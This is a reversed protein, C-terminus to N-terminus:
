TFNEEHVNNKKLRIFNGLLRKNQTMKERVKLLGWLMESWSQKKNRLINRLRTIVPFKDGDHKICCGHHISHAAFSNQQSISTFPTIQVWTGFSCVFFTRISIRNNTQYFEFLASVCVRECECVPFHAFSIAGDFRWAAYVMHLNNLVRGDIVYRMQNLSHFALVFRTREAQILLRVYYKNITNIKAEIQDFNLQVSHTHTRIRVRTSYSNWNHWHTRVAFHSQSPAAAPM